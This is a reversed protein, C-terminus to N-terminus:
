SPYPCRLSFAAVLKKDKLNFLFVQFCSCAWKCTNTGHVLQLLVLPDRGYYCAELQVHHCREDSLSSSYFIFFALPRISGRERERERAHSKRKGRSSVSNFVSSNFIHEINWHRYFSCFLPEPLDVFGGGAIM